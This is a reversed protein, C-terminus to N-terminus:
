KGSALLNPPGGDLVMQRMTDRIAHKMLVRALCENFCRTWIRDGELPFRQLSKVRDPMRLARDLHLTVAFMFDDWSGTSERLSIAVMAFERVDYLRTKKRGQSKQIEAVIKNQEILPKGGSTRQMKVQVSVRLDGNALVFDQAATEGPLVTWEPFKARIYRAFMLDAVTGRVGRLNYATPNACLADLITRWDCGWETELPHLGAARDGQSSSVTPQLLLTGAIPSFPPLSDLDGQNQKLPDPLGASVPRPTSKEPSM